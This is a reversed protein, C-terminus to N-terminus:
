SPDSPEAVPQAPEPQPVAFAAVQGSESQVYLRGGIVVPSASVMGKGVRVRAVPRGDGADFFHIYGEFDGVVVSTNFAVPQTPERRLLAAQRWAEAGNRRSMAVLEGEETTTYLQDWDAGIGSYSSLERAWLIQGSEAALAAIRGHYGAAYVDQGIVAIAGDVDSLRELDSRGSPPALMSEWAVEGDLINVAVLRGNDFGCLVTTGVVVPSASGRLTLPPSPQEVTWRERGDFMALGRLKGDITAVVVTDNRILPRSVSEGAVNTRWREAGDAANLAVAEGGRGLVVVLDDGAGPGATLPTDTETRWLRRGTDPDLASVAGDHSAVYIRTGDGTPALSLRMFETGKGANATWLRKVALTQKFDLLEAPKLEEDDKDGFISCAPLMLVAVALVVLRSIEKM